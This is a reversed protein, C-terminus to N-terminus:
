MIVLQTQAEFFERPTNEAHLIDAADLIHIGPRHPYSEFLHEKMERTFLTNVAYVPMITRYRDIRKGFWELLVDSMRAFEEPIQRVSFAANKAQLFVVPGNWTRGLIWFGDAGSDGSKPYGQPAPVGTPRFFGGSAEPVLLRFARIARECGTGDDRPAGLAVAWGGVFRHLATVSRKEFEKALRGDSNDKGVLYALRASAQALPEQGNLVTLSDGRPSLEFPYILQRERYAAQAYPIYRSLLSPREDTEQIDDLATFAVPTEDLDEEESFSPATSLENSRRGPELAEVELDRGDQIFTVDTPFPTTM